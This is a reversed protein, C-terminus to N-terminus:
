LSASARNAIAALISNQIDAVDGTGDIEVLLGLERYRDIVPLTKKRYEQLRVELAELTDDARNHRDDHTALAHWRNRVEDESIDLYIVLKLEHHAENLAEIVGVEEGIWRGVSSLILPKGSFEEKSLYPLVIDVYDSSPILEGRALIEDIRAPINSNRLIDGGGMMHADFLETLQRGQTDKGAFPRGFLNISGTGLWQKISDTNEM